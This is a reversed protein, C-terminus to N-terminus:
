TGVRDQIWGSGGMEAAVRMTWVMMTEDIYHGGLQYGQKM